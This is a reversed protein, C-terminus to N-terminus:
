LMRPGDGRTLGVQRENGSRRRQCGPGVQRPKRGWIGEGAAHGSADDDRNVDNLSAMARTRSGRCHGCTCRGGQVMADWRTCGLSQEV